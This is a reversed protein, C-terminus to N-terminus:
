HRNPHLKTLREELEKYHATTIEVTMFLEQRRDEQGWIKSHLETLWAAVRVTRSRKPHDLDDHSDTRQRKLV